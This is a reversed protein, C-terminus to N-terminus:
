GMLSPRCSSKGQRRHFERPWRSSAMIHRTDVEVVGDRSVDDLSVPHSPPVFVLSGAALAESPPANRAATTEDVRRLDPVKEATTVYHTARVFATFQANTVDTEDIYFGTVQVSAPREEAWAAPDDTGM